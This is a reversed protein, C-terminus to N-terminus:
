NYMNKIVLIDCNDLVTQERWYNVLQTLSALGVSVLVNFDLNGCARIYIYIYIYITRFIHPVRRHALAVYQMPMASHGSKTGRLWVM